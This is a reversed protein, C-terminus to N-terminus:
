LQFLTHVARKAPFSGKKPLFLVFSFVALVFSTKIFYFLKSLKHDAKTKEAYLKIKTKHTGWVSKKKTHLNPGLFAIKLPKVLNIKLVVPNCNFNNINISDRLM